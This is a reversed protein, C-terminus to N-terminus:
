NYNDYLMLVQIINYLYFSIITNLRKNIKVITCFLTLQIEETYHVIQQDYNKVEELTIFDGRKYEELSQKIDKKTEESLGLHPEVFDWIVDEYSDGDEKFKKLTNLLDNSVRISTQNQMNYAHM